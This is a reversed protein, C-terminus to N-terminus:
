MRRWPRTLAAQRLEAIEAKTADASVYEELHSVGCPTGNEAYLVACITRAPDRKPFVPSLKEGTQINVVQFGLSILKSRAM